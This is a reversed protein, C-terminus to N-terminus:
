REIEQTKNQEKIDKESSVLWNCDFDDVKVIFEKEKTLVQDYGGCTEYTGKGVGKALIEKPIDFTCIYFDRNDKSHYPKIYKIASKNKFFHLYRTNIQYKHTNALKDGHNFYSGIHDKFDCLIARLERDCLYRYVLM